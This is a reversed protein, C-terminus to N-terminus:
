HPADHAPLDPLPDSLRMPTLSPLTLQTILFPSSGNNRGAPASCLKIALNSHRPMLPKRWFASSYLSMSSCDSAINRGAQDPSLHVFHCLNPLQVVPHLYSANAPSPLVSAPGPARSDDRQKMRCRSLLCSCPKRGRGALRAGLRKRDRRRVFRDM